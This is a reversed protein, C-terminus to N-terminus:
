FIKFIIQLLIAIGSLILAIITYVWNKKLSNINLDLLTNEKDLKEEKKREEFYERHLGGSSLFEVGYDNIQYSMEGSQFYEGVIIPKEKFRYTSLKIINIESIEIKLNRSIQNKDYWEGKVSQLFNLIRDLELADEINMKLDTRIARLNLFFIVWYVVRYM